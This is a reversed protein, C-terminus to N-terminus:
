SYGYKLCFDGFTEELIAQESSSFDRRWDGSANQSIHGSQFGTNVDYARYNTRSVAVIDHPNIAERSKIKEKLNNSLDRILKRVNSKSYIETIRVLDPEASNLELFNDIKALTKVPESEIDEFRVFLVLDPDYREYVAACQIMSEGIALAQNFDCNMFNKYSLCIDRPDRLTTVIKSNEVNRTLMTHVKLCYRNLENKDQQAARYCEMMEEDSKPVFEPLATYGAVRLLERIVNFTWMSGTRPTTSIWVTNYM